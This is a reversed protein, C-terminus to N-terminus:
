GWLLKGVEQWPHVRVGGCHAWFAIDTKMLEEGCWDDDFDGTKFMKRLARAIEQCKSEPIEKQAFHEVTVGHRAASRLLWDYRPRCYIMSPHNDGNVKKLYGSGSSDPFGNGPNIAELHCRYVGNIRREDIRM